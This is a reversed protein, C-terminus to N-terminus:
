HILPLLETSQKGPPVDEMPTRLYGDFSSGSFFLRPQKHSSICPKLCNSWFFCPCCCLCCCLSFLFTSVDTCLGNKKAEQSDKILPTEESDEHRSKPELRNDKMYEKKLFEFIERIGINTKASCTFVMEQLSFKLVKEVQSKIENPGPSSWSDELDMKSCVVYCKMDEEIHKKVNQFYSTNKTEDVFFLVFKADKLYKSTTPSYREQGATDFIQFEFNEFNKIQYDVGITAKYEGPFSDNAYRKLVSTKGTKSAGLLVINVVNRM